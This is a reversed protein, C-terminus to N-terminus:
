EANEAEKIEIKYAKNSKDFFRRDSRMGGVSVIDGKYTLIPIEDRKSRPIKKDSFFDSLKKTGNMGVPCFTDGSRRSRVTLHEEGDLYFDGNESVPYILINKGIEPINLVKQPYIKYEFSLMDRKKAITLVGYELRAEFGQPLDIRSGTRNKEALELIDEIYALGLNEECMASKKWHLQLVRQSISPELSKLEEARIEGSYKEQALKELFDSDQAFLRSNRTVVEVFNPNFEHEIQPILDLRIKNRSYIAEFNTEDTVFDYGNERCFGIIEEKKVDLLPRIINGRMYPIGSLGKVSAGRMFNFLLTEAVDNKNHATAIKDFGLSDFYDYRVKRAYLEESDGAAKAGSKIDACLCYFPVGLQECLRRCFNMDRDATERLGHNIHACAVTLGLKPALTCLIHLLATSDAGGSFGVLVRDNEELLSHEKITNQVIKLIDM